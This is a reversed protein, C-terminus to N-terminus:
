FIGVARVDISFNVHEHESFQGIFYALPDILGNKDVDEGVVDNRSHGM